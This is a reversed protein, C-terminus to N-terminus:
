FTDRSIFLHACSTSIQDITHVNEYVEVEFM